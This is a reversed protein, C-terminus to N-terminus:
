RARTCKAELVHEIVQLTIQGPQAIDDARVTSLGLEAVAPKVIYERVGDARRRADSDDDGIPSILFCEDEFAPVSGSAM